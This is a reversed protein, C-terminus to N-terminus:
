VKAGPLCQSLDWPVRELWSFRSLDWWEESHWNGGQLIPVATLAECGSATSFAKQTDVCKVKVIAKQTTGINDRNQLLSFEPESLNLSMCLTLDQVLIQVLIQMFGSSLYQYTCCYTYMSRLCLGVCLQCEFLTSIFGSSDLLIEQLSSFAKTSVQGIWYGVHPM